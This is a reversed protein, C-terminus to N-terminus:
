IKALSCNDLICKCLYYFKEENLGMKKVIDKGQSNIYEDLRNYSVGVLGLNIVTARYGANVAIEDLLPAEEYVQM